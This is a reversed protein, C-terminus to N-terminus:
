VVARTSSSLSVTTIATAATDVGLRFDGATVIFALVVPAIPTYDHRRIFMVHAYEWRM